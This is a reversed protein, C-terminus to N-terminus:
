IKVLLSDRLDQIQYKLSICQLIRPLTCPIFFPSYLWYARFSPSGDRFSALGEIIHVWEQTYIIRAAAM